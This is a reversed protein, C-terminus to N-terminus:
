RIKHYASFRKKAKNFYHESLEISYILSFDDYLSYITDGLYTGTEVLTDVNYANRIQRLVQQKTHNSAYGPDKKLLDAHEKVFYNKYIKKELEKPLFSFLKRWHSKMSKISLAFTPT